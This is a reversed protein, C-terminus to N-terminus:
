KQLRNKMIMRMKMVIIMPGCFRMLVSFSTKKPCKQWIDLRPINSLKQKKKEFKQRTSGLFHQKNFSTYMKNESVRKFVFWRGFFQLFCDYNKEMFFTISLSYCIISWYREQTNRFFDSFIMKLESKLWSYDEWCYGTQIEIWLYLLENWYCMVNKLMQHLDTTSFLLKELNVWLMQYLNPM